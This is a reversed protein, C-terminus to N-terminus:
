LYKEIMNLAYGRAGKDKPGIMVLGCNRKVFLREACSMIQNKTMNKIKDCLLDLKPDKKIFYSRAVYHMYSEKDYTLTSLRMLSRVKARELEEDTIKNKSLNSLIKLLEPLFLHFMSTETSSYISFTGSDNYSCVSSDIDYVLGKEERIRYSLRSMYGDSLLSDLISYVPYDQDWENQCPFIMHVQYQNDPHEILSVKPGVFNPLIEKKRTITKMEELLSFKEDIKPIWDKAEDPGSLTLLMNSSVYFSKYYFALDDFSLSEISDKTGTIPRSLTSSPWLLKLAQHDADILHGLHNLDDEIERLVIQREKEIGEFQPYFLFDYFLDVINHSNKTYLGSFSYDTTEYGTSANWDGAYKEFATALRKFDPYNKSGRFMMHELFHSIGSHKKEEDRVGVNFFTNFSIKKYNKQPFFFLEIGNSLKYTEFNSEYTFSEYIM